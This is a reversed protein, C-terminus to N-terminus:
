VERYRAEAYCYVAFAILGTAVLGLLTDGYDRQLVQALAGDLGVAEQPDYQWAARLLFFGMLGFVLGRALHGFVGAGTFAKEEVESMKRTKLNERFKRTVARWVNFAGAGLVAAGIAGVLLRGFPLELVRATFRDEQNASGEDAAFLTSLAVALLGAYWASRAFYGIRKYWPDKEGGELPRGLVGEAFRWGAYGALGVALALVLPLGLWHDAVESIAGGRDQIREGGGVAVHAAILGVLLYLSGKSLLGWRALGRGWRSRAFRKAEHTPATVADSM